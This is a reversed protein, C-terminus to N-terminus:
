SHRTVNQRIARFVEGSYNPAARRWVLYLTSQGNQVLILDNKKPAVLISVHATANIAFTGAFTWYYRVDPHGSMLASFSFSNASRANTVFSRREALVDGSPRRRKEALRRMPKM